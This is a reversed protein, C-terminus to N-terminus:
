AHKVCNRGAEKARVLAHDAKDLLDPLETMDEKLGAVGLSITVSFEQQDLKIPKQFATRLRDAVLCAEAMQTEPLLVTFEDGGYRGIIDVKRTQERCRKATEVLVADGVGHGYTDNIQQFLDIDVIIISLHYGFRKVRAIERVGIEFFGRRNYVGTLPDSISLKQIEGSLRELEANKRVVERQLTVLEKNLRIVEAGLNTGTYTRIEKRLGDAMVGQMSALEEYLDIFTVAPEGKPIGIILITKNDTVAFLVLPLTQDNKQLAFERNFVAKKELLDKLFDDLKRRDDPTIFQALMQGPKLGGIDISDNIVRLITGQPDCLLSVAASLRNTSM